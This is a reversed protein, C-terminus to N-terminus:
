YFTVPSRNKDDNRTIVTCGDVVPVTGVCAGHGFKKAVVDAVRTM